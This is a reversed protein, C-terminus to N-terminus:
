EAPRRLQALCEAVNPEGVAAQPSSRDRRMQCLGPSSLQQRGRGLSVTSAQIIDLLQEHASM